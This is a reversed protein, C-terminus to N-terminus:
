KNVVKVGGRDVRIPVDEFSFSIKDDKRDIDILVTIGNMTAESFYQDFAFNGLSYYIKKDNYIETNGVIHPHAGIVMDAGNDIFQHAWEKMKTTPEKQYEIGWHPSVIVVDVENKLKAIEFLVNEFNTYNFEHFGVFGIKIGNKIIITSIEDKNFPDGYYLMGAGGIYRRTSELGQKGYNYSHNNALGLVDFGLDSLAPALSPDFTFQLAKNKLDATISPNTTFAGELNGVAIDANKILDKVGSFFSEFGNKNILNRVNRDLMIDGVVLVKLHADNNLTIGHQSFSFNNPIYFGITILIILLTAFIIILNRKNKQNNIEGNM